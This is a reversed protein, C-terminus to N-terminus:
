WRAFSSRDQTKELGERARLGTSRLLQEVFQCIGDLGPRNPGRRESPKTCNQSLKMVSTENRESGHADFSTAFCALLLTDGFQPRFVTGAAIWLNSARREVGDFLDGLPLSSVAMRLAMKAAITITVM